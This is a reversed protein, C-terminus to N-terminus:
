RSEDLAQKVSAFSSADSLTLQLDNGSPVARITPTLATQDGIKVQVQSGRNAAMLQRLRAADKDAFSLNIALKPATPTSYAYDVIELSEGGKGTFQLAPKAFASASMLSAAILVRRAVISNRM